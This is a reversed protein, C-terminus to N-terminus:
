KIRMVYGFSMEGFDAQGFNSNVNAGIFVNHKPNRNTNKVYLNLGLRSNVTKKLFEKLGTSTGYKEFYVDFYPKYINIGAEFNLGVHGLLLESGLHWYINSANSRPKNIFKPDQQLIIDNYYQEYYRYAFGTKVKIHNRYLVGASLSFTHVPRKEGGIPARSGGYEHYGIGQRLQIFFHKERDIDPTNSVAFNPDFPKNLWQVSLSLMAANLGFNPLQAHANSGHLLGAGLKLNLHETSHINKYISTQFAWTIKSGIAKNEPNTTYNLPYYSSGLGLKLYWSKQHQKSTNLVIFPLISYEYGLVSPNGLHSISFSVGTAPFNFYKAWSNSLTSQQRGVSVVFTKRGNDSYNGIIAGYMLEPEIFFSSSENNQGQIVGVGVTFFLFSLWILKSM